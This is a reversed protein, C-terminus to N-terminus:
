NCFDEAAGGTMESAFGDPEEAAGTNTFTVDQLSNSIAADFDADEQNSGAQEAMEAITMGGGGSGDLPRDMLSDESLAKDAPPSSTVKLAMADKATLYSGIKGLAQYSQLNSYKIKVIGGESDNISIDKTKLLPESRSFAVSDQYKNNLIKIQSDLDCKQLAENFFAMNEAYRELPNIIHDTLFEIHKINKIKSIDIDKVRDGEAIQKLNDLVASQILENREVLGEIREKLEAGIDGRPLNLETLTSNTKLVDALAVLGEDGIHKFLLDLVAIKAREEPTFNLFKQLNYCDAM